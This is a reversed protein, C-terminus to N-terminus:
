HSIFMVEGKSPFTTIHNTFTVYEHKITHELFYHNRDVLVTGAMKAGATNNWTARM